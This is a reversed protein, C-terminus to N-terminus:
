GGIAEALRRGLYYHGQQSPHTTDSSIFYDANGDGVQSNAHGTGTIWTESIADVFEAGTAAAETSIADRADTLTSPPSSRPWWPSVVVLRANPLGSRIAAFLLGAETQIQAKTYTAYDNIGGAVVVIEPARNVIDTTLRDRFKARGSGPNLYGTGGWGSAVVNQTGLRAAMHSPFGTFHANGGTGEVFSDGMVAIKTGLSASSAALTGATYVGGFRLNSAMEITIRRTKSTAFQVLMLYQSGNSPSVSSVAEAIPLGDVLIRYKGTNGKSRFEFSIGTLNFDVYSPGSAAITGATQAADAAYLHTDPFVTGFAVPNGWYRFVANGAATLVSGPIQTTGNAAGQTVTPVDLSTQILTRASLGIASRSGPTM